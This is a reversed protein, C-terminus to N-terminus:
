RSSRLRPVLRRSEPDRLQWACLAAAAVLLLAWRQHADVWAPGPGALLPWRGALVQEVVAILLIGLVVYQAPEALRWRRQLTLAASSLLALLALAELALGAAVSADLHDALLLGAPLGAALVVAWATTLRAPILWRAVTSETVDCSPDDLAFVAAVAGVVVVGRILWTAGLQDAIDDVKWWTVAWALAIGVSLAPWRCLRPWYTVLGTHPGTSTQLTTTM